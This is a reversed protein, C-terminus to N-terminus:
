EILVFPALVHRFFLSLFTRVTVSCGTAVVCDLAYKINTQLIYINIYKYQSILRM